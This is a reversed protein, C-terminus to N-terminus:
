QQQLFSAHTAFRERLLDAGVSAGHAQLLSAHTALLERLLDAGVSAGHAQLLSAHTALLGQLIRHTSRVADTAFWREIPTLGDGRDIRNALSVADEPQRTEVTLVVCARIQDVDLTPADAHTLVFRLVIEIDIGCLISNTSLVHHLRQVLAQTADIQQPRIQNGPRASQQIPQNRAVELQGVQGPM